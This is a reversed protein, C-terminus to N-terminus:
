LSCIYTLQWGMTNGCQWLSVANKHHYSIASVQSAAAFISRRVISATLRHLGGHAAHRLKQM